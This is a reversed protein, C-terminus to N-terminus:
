FLRWVILSFIYMVSQQISDDHVESIFYFLL